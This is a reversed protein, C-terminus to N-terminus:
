NGLPESTLTRLPDQGHEQMCRYQGKSKPLMKIAWIILDLKPQLAPKASLIFEILLRLPPSEMQNWEWVENVLHNGWDEQLDLL